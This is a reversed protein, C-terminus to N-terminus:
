NSPHYYYFTQNDPPYMFAQSLLTQSQHMQDPGMSHSPPLTVPGFDECGSMIPNTQHQQFQQQQNNALVFNFGQQQMSPHPIPPPPPPGYSLFDPYRYQQSYIQQQSQVASQSSPMSSQQEANRSQHQNFSSSPLTTQSTPFFNTVHKPQLVHHPQQHMHQQLQENHQQIPLPHQLTPQLSTSATSTHLSQQISPQGQQHSSHQGRMVECAKLIKLRPGKPVDITQLDRETLNVITELKIGNQELKCTYKDLSLQNMLDSLTRVDQFREVSWGKAIPTTMVDNDVTTTLENPKAPPLTQRDKLHHDSINSNTRPSSMGGDHNDPSRLSGTHKNAHNRFASVNWDPENVDKSSKPWPRNNIGDMSPHSRIVNSRPSSGRSRHPNDVNRNLAPSSPASYASRTQYWPQNDHNTELYPAQENYKTQTENQLSTPTMDLHNSGGFGSDNDFYTTLEVKSSSVSSTPSSSIDCADNVGGSSATSDLQSKNTSWEESFVQEDEADFGTSTRTWASVSQKSDTGKDLQDTSLSRPGANQANSLIDIKPQGTWSISRNRDLGSTSDPLTSTTSLQTSASSLIWPDKTTAEETLPFNRSKTGPEATKRLNYADYFFFTSDFSDSQFPDHTKGIQEENVTTQKEASTTSTLTPTKLTPTLLPAKEDLVSSEAERLTEHEKPGAEDTLKIEDASPEMISEKNDFVKCKSEMEKQLEDITTSAKAVKSYSILPRVESSPLPKMRKKQAGSAPVLSDKTVDPSATSTGVINEPLIIKSISTPNSVIEQNSLSPTNLAKTVLNRAKEANGPAGKITIVRNAPVINTPPKDITIQAGSDETILNIKKGGKGIVRGCYSNPVTMEFFVMKSTRSTEKWDSERYEDFSSNRSTSSNTTVTSEIEEDWGTSHHRVEPPAINRVEMRPDSYTTTSQASTTVAVSSIPQQNSQQHHSRHNSRHLNSNTSLFSNTVTKETQISVAIRSPGSTSSSQTCVGSTKPLQRNINSIGSPFSLRNSLLQMVEIPSSRETLGNNDNQANIELSKAIKEDVLSRFTNSLSEARNEFNRSAEHKLSKGIDIGDDTKLIDSKRNSSKHTNQHNNHLLEARSEPMTPIESIKLVDHVPKEDGCKVRNETPAIIDKNEEEDGDDFEDEVHNIGNMKVSDVSKMSSHENDKNKKRKNKNDRRKEAKKKKKKEERDREDDLEQVLNQANRLALLERKKKMEQIISLCKSRQQVIVEKDKDDVSSMLIKHCLEDSPLHHVLKILWEIISVHGNKFAAMIPTNGRCDPTEVNAGEKSLIKCIDLHGEKCSLFIPTYGKKTHCDLTAGKLLLLQVLEQHGKEACLTLPNERSNPFPTNVGAGHELLLEVISIHNERCAQFLPTIGTKTRCDRYANRILLLEAVDRHGKWCAMFLPSQGYNDPLEVDANSNLLIEAVDKHGERTAEMLPTCGTKTQHDINSKSDLLLLVVNKHGKWCALTLPTDDNSGSPVNVQAGRELLLATTEYHGERAALMLPTCGAKNRHEIDSNHNLLLQVVEWHGKWCALTLPINNESGSPVNVQANNKLLLEAVYIHGERAALMLPTCGDKTRHEINSNYELLLKVVNHHGKWCASTLPIDNNSGSPVNVQANSQLLKQAVKGHGGLAAFMLPSFGEKTRHEINSDRLLLLEVVDYHGKWCAFTLPSDKNSESEVNIESKADLLKEAVDRHGALCAFMLATCGDKTRHEVDANKLLLADVITANGLTCAWTLASDLTTETPADIKSGNELLYNAVLVHGQSCAELLPTNGAKNRHNVHAGSQLLLQVIDLKGQRCALSLMEDLSVDPENISPLLNDAESSQSESDSSASSDALQANDTKTESM